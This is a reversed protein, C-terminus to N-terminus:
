KEISEILIGAGSLNARFPEGGVVKIAISVEDEKGPCLAIMCGGGGAGTMKSGLAGASRSSYVMENLRKSSVGLSDLLGHNVNMLRGMGALDGKTIAARGEEVTTAIAGMVSDVVRPSADRLAKVRKLLDATGAERETYGVV